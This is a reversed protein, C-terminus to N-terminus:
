KKIFRPIGPDFTDIQIMRCKFKGSKHMRDIKEKIEQPPIEEGNIYKDLVNYTFGFKDEDSSGCLGDAPVKDVLDEPLKLYKGIAKIETVTLNGLPSFSGASDGYLTSWGVIDESYNSTNAVMGNLTQAYAYLVTMRIRPPINMITQASAHLDHDEMGDLIDNVSGYINHVAYKIDLLKVVKYSDEIDQQDGDPVLIGFVRDKGLAEVCLKTVITSDKGGSIGIVAICNSGNKDFWERIWAICNNTLTSVDM